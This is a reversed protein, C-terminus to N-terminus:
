KKEGKELAQVTNNINKSFIEQLQNPHVHPEMTFYGAYDDNILESFLGDYCIAGEGLECCLYDGSQDQWLFGEQPKKYLSKHYKMGDKIHIYKIYKKLLRYAYPYPEEGAFYFNCADFNIRFYPSDIMEVLELVHEAKRTPDVGTIDFENELVITIKEKEAYALCTAINEKYCKLAEQPTRNPNAGFYTNVVNAGLYKAAKISQIILAQRQGVNGPLNLQTWTSVCIAQLKRKDLEKKIKEINDYEFNHPIWLELNSVGLYDAIAYIEEIPRHPYETGSIAIRKMEHEIQM